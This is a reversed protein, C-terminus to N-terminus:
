DFAEYINVNNVKNAAELKNEVVKSQHWYRTSFVSLQLTASNGISVICQFSTKAEHKQKEITKSVDKHALHHNFLLFQKKRRKILM